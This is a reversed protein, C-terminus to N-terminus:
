FDDDDAELEGLTPWDHAVHNARDYRARLDRIDLLRLVRTMTNDIRRQGRGFEKTEDPNLGLLHYLTSFFAKSPKAAGRLPKVVEVYAAYIQDKPTGLGWSEQKHTVSERCLREDYNRRLTPIEGNELVQLWFSEEPSMSLETIEPDYGGAPRRRPSYDTLDLSLLHHLLAACGGNNRWKLIPQFYADERAHKDSVRLVVFRRDDADIHIPHQENSAVILRGYHRLRVQDVGKSEFSREEDTIFSKINGLIRKDGGWIAENAFVLLKDALHFNFQGFIGGPSSTEFYHRGLIRALVSAFISKGTGQRGVLVPSTMPKEQPIQFLHACWGILWDNLEKDGNCIVEYVFDLFVSVDGIQPEIVWGTFLNFCGEVNEGPHAPDFTVRRYERRGPHGIWYAGQDIFKDEGNKNTGVCVKPRNSLTKHFKDVKSFNVLPEYIGADSHITMVPREGQDTIWAYSQNLEKIAPDVTSSDPGISGTVASNLKALHYLTGITIGGEAKAHQWQYLCEKAGPYRKTCGASWDKFWEFAEEHETSRLALMVQIWEERSCDPSIQQLAAQFRAAEIKMVPNTKAKATIQRTVPNKNEQNAWGQWIQLIGEPAIPPHMPDGLGGWTYPKGTDPHISPPLVDQVSGGNGTACRLEFITKGDQMIKRTLRPHDIRYLLKCSNPRGSVIQVADEAQLLDALDVEREDFWSAAAHFDDIDLTMLPPDCHALLLGASENLRNANEVGRIANEPLQWGKLYPEKTSPRLPTLAWGLQLYDEFASM